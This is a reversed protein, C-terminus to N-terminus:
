RCIVLVVSVCGVEILEKLPFFIFIWKLDKSRTVCNVRIGSNRWWKSLSQSGAHSLSICLTLSFLFIMNGRGTFPFSQESSQESQSEGMVPQSRIRPPAPFQSLWCTQLSHALLSVKHYNLRQISIMFSRASTVNPGAWLYLAFIYFLVTVHIDAVRILDWWM